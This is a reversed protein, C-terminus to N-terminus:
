PAVGTRSLRDGGHGGRRGGSHRLRNCRHFSSKRSHPALGPLHVRVDARISHDTRRHAGHPVNFLFLGLVILVLLMGRLLNREVTQTTEDVLASRDYYPVIKIDPPLVHQNLEKTLDEVRKLVVQAQEGVRMLIVGEVADNQKMYGFQGLRVASGVEVKAVDKVYTPIGNNTALVINGIDQTTKV